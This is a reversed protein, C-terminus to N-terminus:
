SPHSAPEHVALREDITRLTGAKGIEVEVEFRPGAGAETTM